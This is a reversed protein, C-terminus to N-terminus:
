MRFGTYEEVFRIKDFDNLRLRKIAKIAAFAESRTKIADKFKEEFTSMTKYEFLKKILDDSFVKQKIKGDESEFGIERRTDVDDIYLTAHSGNGDFGNFLKNDNQHQAIIENRTLRQSGNPAFKVEGMETIRNFGVTWDAINKVTVKKDLDLEKVIEEAM